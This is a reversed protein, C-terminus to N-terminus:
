FCPPRDSGPWRRNRKRSSVVTVSSFVNQALRRVINRYLVREHYEGNTTAISTIAVILIAVSVHYVANSGM